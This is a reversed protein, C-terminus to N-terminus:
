TCGFSMIISICGVGANRNKVNEIKKDRDNAGSFIIVV